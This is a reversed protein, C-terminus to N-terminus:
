LGYTDRFEDRTMGNLSAFTTVYITEAVLDIPANLDLNLNTEAPYRSPHEEDTTVFGSYTSSAVRVTSLLVWGPMGSSTQGAVAIWGNEAEPDTPDLRIQWMGPEYEEARPNTGFCDFRLALHGAVGLTIDCDFMLDATSTTMACTDGM